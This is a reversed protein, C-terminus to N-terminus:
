ADGVAPAFDETDIAANMAPSYRHGAVTSHNILVDLRAMADDSLTM